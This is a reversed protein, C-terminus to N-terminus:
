TIPRDGSRVCSEKGAAIARSRAFADDACFDLDEDDDDEDDASTRATLSRRAEVGLLFEDDDDDVESAELALRSSRVALDADAAVVASGHAFSKADGCLAFAETEACVGLCCEWCRGFVALVKDPM